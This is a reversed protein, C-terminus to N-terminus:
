VVVLLLIDNDVFVKDPCHTSHQKSVEVDYLSLIERFFNSSESQRGGYKNMMLPEISIKYDKFRRKKDVYMFEWNIM